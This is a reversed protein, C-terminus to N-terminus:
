SRSLRILGISAAARRVTTLKWLRKAPVTIPNRIEAASTTETLRGLGFAESGRPM